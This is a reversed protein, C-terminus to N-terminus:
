VADLQVRDGEAVSFDTIRCFRVNPNPRSASM